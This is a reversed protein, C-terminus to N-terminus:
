PFKRLLPITLERSGPGALVLRLVDGGWDEPTREADWQVKLISRGDPAIRPSEKAAWEAKIFDVPTVIKAIRIEERGHNHVLIEHSIGPALLLRGPTISLPTRVSGQVSIKQTRRSAEGTALELTLTGKIEGELQETFVGLLLIGEEGQRAVFYSRDLAIWHPSEIVRVSIQIESENKYPVEHWSAEGQLIQGFQIQRKGIRFKRLQKDIEAQDPGSAPPRTRKGGFVAALNSGEVRIMWTDGRWVWRQRVPWNVPAGFSPPQVLAQMTVVAEQSSGREFELKAIRYSKVPPWKSNLFHDHGETVYGLAQHKQGRTVLSWFELVREQLQNLDPVGQRAPSDIQSLQSWASAVSLAGLLLAVILPSAPVRSLRFEFPSSPQMAGPFLFLPHRGM